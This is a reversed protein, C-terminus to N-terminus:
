KEREEEKVVEHEEQADRDRTGARLAARTEGAMAVRVTDTSM